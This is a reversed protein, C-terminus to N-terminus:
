LIETIILIKKGVQLAPRKRRHQLNQARTDQECGLARLRPWAQESSHTGISVDSPWARDVGGEMESKRGEAKSIGQFWDQPLM